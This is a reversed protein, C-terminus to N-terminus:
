STGAPSVTTSTFTPAATEFMLTRAFPVVVKVRSTVIPPFAKM